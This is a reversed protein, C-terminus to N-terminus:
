IYATYIDPNIIIQSQSIHCHFKMAGFVLTAMLIAILSLGIKKYKM